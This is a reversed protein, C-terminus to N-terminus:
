TVSQWATDSCWQIDSLWGIDSPNGSYNQTWPFIIEPSSFHVGSWMSCFYLRKIKLRRATWVFKKFYSDSNIWDQDIKTHMLNQVAGEFLCPCLQKSKRPLLDHSVLSQIRYLLFILNHFNWPMWFIENKAETHCCIRLGVTSFINFYKQFLSSVSKLLEPFM